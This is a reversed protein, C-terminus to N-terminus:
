PGCTVTEGSTNICTWQGGTWIHYESESSEQKSQCGVCVKAIGNEFNYSGDYIPPVVEKGKPDAFGWKDNRSFRVLGDHFSDAWNDMTAVGSIVVIGKKNVYSWGLGKERIVALGKEDFTLKALTRSTVHFEGSKKSELCRKSETPGNSGSYLCPLLEAHCVSAGSVVIIFSILYFALLKYAM